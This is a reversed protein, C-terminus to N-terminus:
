ALFKRGPLCVVNYFRNFIAWKICYYMDHSPNPSVQSEQLRSLIPNNMMLVSQLQALLQLAHAQQLLDASSPLGALPSTPTTTPPGGAGMMQQMAASMMMPNEALLQQLMPGM